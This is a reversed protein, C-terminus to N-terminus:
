ERIEVIIHEPEVQYVKSLEAKASEIMRERKEEEQASEQQYIASSEWKVCISISEVAVGEQQDLKVTVKAGSIGLEELYMRIQMEIEKQYAHYLYTEQYGEMALYGNEMAKVEEELTLQDLTKEFSEELHSIRLLPRGLVLIMVIGLFFQLYKRYQNEPLIQLVATMFILYAAVTRLWELIAETM